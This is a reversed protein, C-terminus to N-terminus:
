IDTTTFSYASDPCEMRPTVVLFDQNNIDINVHERGNELYSLPDATPDRQPEAPQLTLM